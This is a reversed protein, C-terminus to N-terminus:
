GSCSEPDLSSGVLEGKFAKQLLSHFLHEAQKLQEQAIAEQSEIDQIRLAFKNQLTIPPIPALERHVLKRDLTPVGAGHSFRKLDFKEIFFKLYVINNEFTKYSYLSTNLPWSKGKILQVKGISGSRGTVVINKNVKFQNHYGVIGTSAAIPIDGNVRKSHPLDYGRKLSVVDEFKIKDWGKSNVRVDGFMELFLSQKLADYKDILAKTKKRYADATDLVKAIHQQQPLPPLPIKVRSVTKFNIAAMSTSQSAKLLQKQALDSWLVRYLFDPCVIDKNFNIKFMNNALVGSLGRGIFGVAGYRVMIIDDFKVHYKKDQKPIYRFEKSSQTYNIIRLFTDSNFFKEIKQDSIPVQQGQSFSAIEGLKVEKM